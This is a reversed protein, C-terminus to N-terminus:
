NFKFCTLVDVMCMCCVMHQLIKTLFSIKQPSFFTCRVISSEKIFKCDAAFGIHRYPCHLNARVESSSQQFVDLFSEFWKCIHHKEFAVFTLTSEWCPMWIIGARELFELSKARTGNVHCRFIEISFRFSFVPESSEMSPDTLSAPSAEVFM